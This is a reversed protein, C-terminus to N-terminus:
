CESSTTRRSSPAEGPRNPRVSPHEDTPAATVIAFGHRVDHWGLEGTAGTGATTCRLRYEVGASGLHSGTAAHYLAHAADYGLAINGSGFIASSGTIKDSGTAFLAGAVDSVVASDPDPTDTLAAYMLTASTPLPRDLHIPDTLENKTLDDGSLVTVEHAFCDDRGRLLDALQQLDDSRGALYVVSPKARCVKDRWTSAEDLVDALSGPRFRLPRDGIMRYGRERLMGDAARAQEDSYPDDADRRLVLASARGDQRPLRAGLAEAEEHNTPALGFYNWRDRLDDDSNTTDVLVLGADGLDVVAQSMAPTDRGLGVVGVITPDSAAAKVIAHVARTLHDEHEGTNALLVRLKHKPGGPANVHHQWALVGAVDKITGLAEAESTQHQEAEAQTRGHVTLPGAYVITVYDDGVRTNEQEIKQELTGLGIGSAKGSREDPLNGDLDVGGDRPVFYRGGHHADIGICEPGAWRLGADYSWLTGGCYTHMRHLHVPVAVAALVLAAASLGRWGWLRYWLNPRVPPMEDYRHEAALAAESLGLLMAWPVAISRSPSQRVRLAALWGDYVHDWRRVPGREYASFDTYRLGRGRNAVVVLPDLESRRSRIDSITRVVLWSGEGADPLVVVPPAPRKRRRADLTRRRYNEEIDALLAWVRLQLYGLQPDPVEESGHRDEARADLLMDVVLGARQAFRTERGRRVSPEVLLFSTTVLWKRASGSSRRGVSEFLGTSRLVMGALALLALAILTALLAGWSLLAFLAPLASGFVLAGVATLGIGPSRLASLLRDLPGSLYGRRWREMVADREPQVGEPLDAVARELDNLLRSRPFRFSAYPGHASSTWATKTSLGALISLADAFAQGGPPEARDEAHSPQAPRACPLGRDRLDLYLRALLAEVAEQSGAAIPVEDARSFTWGGRPVALVTIPIPEAARARESLEHLWGALQDAASETDSGHHQVDPM